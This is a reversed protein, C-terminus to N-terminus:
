IRVAGSGRLFALIKEVLRGYLYNERERPPIKETMSSPFKPKRFSALEDILMLFSSSVQTNSDAQYLLVLDRLLMGYGTMIAKAALRALPKFNGKKYEEIAWGIRMHWRVMFAVYKITKNSFKLERLMKEAIAVGVKEHEYFHIVGKVVKVTEPKGVDHMLGAIKLRSVYGWDDM